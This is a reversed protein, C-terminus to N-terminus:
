PSTPCIGTGQLRYGDGQTPPANLAEPLCNLESSPAYSSTEAARTTPEFIIRPAYAGGVYDSTVFGLRAGDAYSEPGRIVLGMNLYDGDIWGKVLDTIDFAYWGWPGTEIPPIAQSTVREGLTPQTTWDVTQSSWLSTARYLSVTSSRGQQNCMYSLFVYLTAQPIPTGPAIGSTDFKVLSRGVQDGAGPTAPDHCEDHDYGAWMDTSSDYNTTPQGEVVMTDEVAYLTKPPPPYGNIVYPMHLWYIVNFAESLTWHDGNPNIVVVNWKGGNANTLDLQCTLTGSNVVSVGTAVVDPQGVQTLKVTPKTSGVYFGKGTLTASIVGTGMTPSITYIRPATATPAVNFGADLRGSKGDPNTVVVDWAGNAAGTLDLDLTLKNENVWTVNTGMIPNHNSKALHVTAGSRFHEGALNTIRVAGTYIGTNPTISNIIPPPSPVGLHLRGAGYITDQGTAGMDVARSELFAQVQAPTFAPYLGWVLAAAGAVHPTAASTGNFGRTGYGEVSVNAYAAIEPKVIGGTATGGPGNTPGESSYTEQPYPDFVDVAAVTIAKPADALNGLSRAPLRVILGRSKPAFLEFNVTRTSDYRQISFGYATAAGYTVATAYETPRQGPRGEQADTSSGIIDWTSGNYRVLYLDFDQTVQTWDDWRLFVRLTENAPIPYCQGLSNEPGFCNVWNGNFEHLGDGNTDTYPGGWHDERDNGAATVWLIGHNRADQVLDAFEGTGDGPTVNYWTLSTSIIDVNESELWQVAEQLDIDTSVKALYLQAGPAVDYVIEACATGHQTTGDVQSPSEGDVFNRTTVTTPLDTGRLAAYGMFGTDIVGVRVGAGIQGSAHWATANMANLAETTSGTGLTQELLLAEDPRRIMHVAPLDAIQRVVTVPLWAQIRTEDLSVGTVKGFVNEDLYIDGVVLIRAKEFRALLDSYAQHNM